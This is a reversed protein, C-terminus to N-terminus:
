LNYNFMKQQETNPLDGNDKKCVSNFYTNFTDARQKDGSVLKGATNWLAGIGSKSSLKKHVFNFFQGANNSAILNREKKIEYNLVM